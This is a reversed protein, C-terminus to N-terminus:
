SCHLVRLASAVYGHTHEGSERVAGVGNRNNCLDRCRLIYGALLQQNRGSGVKFSASSERDNAVYCGIVARTMMMIM